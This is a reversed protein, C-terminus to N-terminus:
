LFLNNGFNPQLGFWSGQSRASVLYVAHLSCISEPFLDERTEFPISLCGWWISVCGRWSGTFSHCPVCSHTCEGELICM